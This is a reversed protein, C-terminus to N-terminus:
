ETEISLKFHKQSISNSAFTGSIELTMDKVRSRGGYIM